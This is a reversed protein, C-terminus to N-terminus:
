NTVARALSALSPVNSPFCPAVGSVAPVVFREDEVDVLSKLVAIVANWVSLVTFRDPAVTVLAMVVVSLAEVPVRGCGRGEAGLPTVAVAPSPCTVTEHAPPKRRSMM